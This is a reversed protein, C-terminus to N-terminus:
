PLQQTMHEQIIHPGIKEGVRNFSTITQFPIQNLNNLISKSAQKLKPTLEKYHQKIKKSLIMLFSELM